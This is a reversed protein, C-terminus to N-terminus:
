LLSVSILEYGVFIELAKSWCCNRPEWINMMDQTKLNGERWMKKLKSEVQCKLLSLKLQNVVKMKSVLNHQVTPM